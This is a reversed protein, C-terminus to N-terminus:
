LLIRKEGATNLLLSTESSAIGEYAHLSKLFTDLSRRSKFRAFVTVDFQGTIDYVALVNPHKAMKESLETIKSKPVRMNIIVSFEYGLKDYDLDASYGRIVGSKEFENLRKMVTAPSLETEKAIQRLSLRANKSIVNLIKRNAEDRLM